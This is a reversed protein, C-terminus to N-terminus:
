DDGEDVAPREGRLIADWRERQRKEQRCCLHYLYALAVIACVLSYVLPKV